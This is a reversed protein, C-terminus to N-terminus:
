KKRKKKGTAPAPVAKFEHLHVINPDLRIAGHSYEALDRFVRADDVGDKNVALMLKKMQNAIYMVLANREDGEPMATAKAIMREIINGYHRYRIFNSPYPVKDPMSALEEETLVECPFDVDLQFNSMLVIHDWFKKDGDNGRLTPFLISMAKVISFACATREGRDEITLCHDVMSQINRGYEPLVLRKLQTNYTLMDPAQIPKTVFNPCDACPRKSWHIGFNVIFRSM